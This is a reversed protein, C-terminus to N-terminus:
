TNDQAPWPQGRCRGGAALSGAASDSHLVGRAAKAGATSSSKGQSTPCLQMPRRSIRRCEGAVSARRDNFRDIELQPRLWASQGQVGGYDLTPITPSENDALVLRTEMTVVTIIKKDKEWM